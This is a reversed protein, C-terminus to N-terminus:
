VSSGEGAEGEGSRPTDTPVSMETLRGDRSASVYTAITSFLEPRKIPKTIHDDCGAELSEQRHQEMAHATLAIVPTQPRDQESELERIRETAEHGDVEPMQVDMLVIDPEDERYAEIAERGNEVLQVSAPQEEFYKQILMQNKENDEAILVDIEGDLGDLESLSEIDPKDDVPQRSAGIGEVLANMLKSWSLPKVAYADFGLKEARQRDTSVEESRLV